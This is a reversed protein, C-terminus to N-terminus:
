DIKLIAVRPQSMDVELVEHTQDTGINGALDTAEVRLLIRRPMTTALKMQYTGVGELNAALPTWPGDPQEAWSLTVPRRSMYKDTATWSVTLKPGDIEPVVTASTIKVVPATMDVLVWVQPLDGSKPPPEGHGLSNRAILTFGYLGE